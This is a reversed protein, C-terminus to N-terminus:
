DYSLNVIVSGRFAGPKGLDRGGLRGKLNVTNWGGGRFKYPRGYGGGWDLEAYIDDTISLPIREGSNTEIVLDVSAGITCSVNVTTSATANVRDATITGFDLQMSNSFFSCSTAQVIGKACNSVLTGVKLYGDIGAAIVVCPKNGLLPELYDRGVRGKNQVGAWWTDLYEFTSIHRGSQHIWDDVDTASYHAGNPLWSEDITYFHLRCRSEGYCPNRIHGPPGVVAASFFGNVSIPVEVVSITFNAYVPASVVLLFLRFLSLFNM